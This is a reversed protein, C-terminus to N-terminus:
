RTKPTETKKEGPGNNGYSVSGELNDKPEAMNQRVKAEEYSECEFINFHCEPCYARIDFARWERQNKCIPCPLDSSIKLGILTEALKSEPKETSLVIEV